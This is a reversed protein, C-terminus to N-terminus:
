SSDVNRTSNRDKEQGPSYVSVAPEVHDAAIQVASDGTRFNYTIGGIGPYVAVDGDPTIRYPPDRLTAHSIQGQVAMTVLEGGNYELPRVQARLGPCLVFISLAAALAARSPFTISRAYTEYM